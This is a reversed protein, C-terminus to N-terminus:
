VHTEVCFISFGIYLSSSTVRWVCPNTSPRRNGTFTESCLVWFMSCKMIQLAFLHSAGILSSAFGSSAFSGSFPKRGLRSTPTGRSGSPDLLRVSIARASNREAFDTVVLFACVKKDALQWEFM